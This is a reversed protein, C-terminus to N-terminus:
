KGDLNNSSTPRQFNGGSKNAVPTYFMEGGFNNGTYNQNFNHPMKLSGNSQTSVRNHLAQNNINHLPAVRMGPSQKMMLNQNNKM